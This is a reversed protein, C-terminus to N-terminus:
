HRIKECILGLSLGMFRYYLSCGITKVRSFFDSLTHTHGVMHLSLFRTRTYHCYKHCEKEGSKHLLRCNHLVYGDNNREPKSELNISM